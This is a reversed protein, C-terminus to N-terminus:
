RLRPLTYIYPEASRENPDYGSSTLATLLALIGQNGRRGASTTAELRLLRVAAPLLVFMRSCPCWGDLDPVCVAVKSTRILGSSWRM